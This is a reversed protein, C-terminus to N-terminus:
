EGDSLRYIELEGELLKRGEYITTWGNDTDMEITLYFTEMEEEREYNWAEVEGSQVTREEGITKVKSTVHYTKEYEKEIEEEDETKETIVFFDDKILEMFEEDYEFEEMVHFLFQGPVDSHESEMLELVLPETEEVAVMDRLFYRASNYTTNDIRTTYAIIKSVEYTGAEEFTLEVLDKIALQLPNYITDEPRTRKHDKGGLMKELFTKGETKGIIIREMRKKISMPYKM